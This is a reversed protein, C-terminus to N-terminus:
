VLAIVSINFISKVDHLVRMECHEYTYLKESNIKM